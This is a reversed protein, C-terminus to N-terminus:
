RLLTLRLVTDVGLGLISWMGFKRAFVFATAVYWLPWASEPYTDPREAPKTARYMPLLSRFFFPLALLPLLVAPTFYGVGVLAGLIAFQLVIIGVVVGRAAREGILVPLTYIRKERDMELKDLHKGMLTATAGLAFPLGAAVALWSWAGTLVYYGGGIMLPGWVLLVSIEGLAIYKLPFTYFFLFFAGGALLIWTLGGRWWVLAAGAALALLTTVVTYGLLRNRTMLGHELPQPGYQDRFYNGRDVGKAHDILDNLLNNAGHAMVLGFALVPWMALNSGPVRLALLGATFAAIVSLIVAAFRTAVLWRSVIDLDDWEAKSLRPIVRVAKAWMDVRISM